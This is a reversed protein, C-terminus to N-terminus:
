LRNLEDELELLQRMARRSERFDMNKISDALLDRKRQLDLKRFDATKDDVGLEGVELKVIDLGSLSLGFINLNKEAEAQIIQKVKSINGTLEDSTMSAVAQRLSGSLVMHVVSDVHGDDNTMVAIEAAKYMLEEESSVGYVFGVETKVRVDDSTNCILPVSDRVPGLPMQECTQFLPFVFARGETVCRCSHKGFSAFLGSIVLVRNEPCRPCCVLFLVVLFVATLLVAVLWVVADVSEGTLFESM